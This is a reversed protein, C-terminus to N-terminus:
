EPDLHTFITLQMGDPARVRVNQDRWSTIVVDSERTAGDAVLRDAVAISIM